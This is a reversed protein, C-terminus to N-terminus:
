QPLVVLRSIRNWKNARQSRITPVITDAMGAGPATGGRVTAMNGVMTAMVWTSSWVM